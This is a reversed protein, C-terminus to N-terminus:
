RRPQMRFCRIEIKREIAQAFFQRSLRELRQPLEEDVGHGVIYFFGYERCAQGIQKAM